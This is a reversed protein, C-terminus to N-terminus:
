ASTERAVRLFAEHVQEDSGAALYPELEGFLHLLDPQDVAAASLTTHARAAASDADARAKQLAIVADALTYWASVYEPSYGPEAAPDPTTALELESFRLYNLHAGRAALAATKLSALTESVGPSPAPAPAYTAPASTPVAPITGDTPAPPTAPWTAPGSLTTGGGTMTAASVRRVVVTRGAHDGLRQRKKSALCSIGAPIYLLWAEPVRVLNRM